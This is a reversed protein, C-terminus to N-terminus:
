ICDRQTICKIYASIHSLEKFWWSNSIWMIECRTWLATNTNNTPVNISYIRFLLGWIFCLLYKSDKERQLIPLENRHQKGSDLFAEHTLFNRHSLHKNQKYEKRMRTKRNKKTKSYPVFYLSPNRQTKGNTYESSFKVVTLNYHSVKKFLAKFNSM